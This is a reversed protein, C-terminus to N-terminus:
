KPAPFGMNELQFAEYIVSYPFSIRAATDPCM